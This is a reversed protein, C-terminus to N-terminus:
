AGRFAESEMHDACGRLGANRWGTNPSDLRPTRYAGLGELHVYDMDVDRLRASLVALNTWPVRASSPYHRIDALRQIGHEHPWGLSEEWTRTSHGITWLSAEAPVLM